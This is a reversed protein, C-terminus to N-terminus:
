RVLEAGSEGFMRCIAVRSPQRAEPRHPNKPITEQGSSAGIASREVNPFITGRTRALLRIAM